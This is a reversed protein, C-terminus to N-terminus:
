KRKKLIYESKHMKRWKWNDLINQTVRFVEHYKYPPTARTSFKVVSPKPVEFVNNEISINDLILISGGYKLDNMIIHSFGNEAEYVAGVNYKMTKLLKMTSLPYRKKNFFKIM